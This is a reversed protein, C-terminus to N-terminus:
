LSFYYSNYYCYNSRNINILNDFDGLIWVMMENNQLQASLVKFNEPVILSTQTLLQIKFKYIKM